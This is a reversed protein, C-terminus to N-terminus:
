ENELGMEERIRSITGALENIDEDNFEVVSMFGSLAEYVTTWRSKWHNVEKELHSIRDNYFRIEDAHKKKLDDIQLQYEDQIKKSNEKETKLENRLSSITEDQSKIRKEQEEFLNMLEKQATKLTLLEDIQKQLLPIKKIEQKLHSVYGSSFQLQNDLLEIVKGNSDGGQEKKTQIGLRKNAVSIVFTTVKNKVSAPTVTFAILVLVMFLALQGETLSALMNGILLIIEEFTM